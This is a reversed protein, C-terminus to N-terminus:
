FGRKPIIYIKPWSLFSAVGYNVDIAVNFDREEKM